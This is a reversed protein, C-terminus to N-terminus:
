AMNFKGDAGSMVAYPLGTSQALKRAILTKGCGSAGHILISRMPFGRASAASAVQVIADMREKIDDSLVLDETDGRWKSQMSLNGYERVLRPATFFRLIVLCTLSISEKLTSAAFVLAATAGVYFLFQQRGEATSVVHELCGALHWFISEIAELMETTLANGMLKIQKLSTAEHEREVVAEANIEEKVVRCEAATAEDLEQLERFHLSFAFSRRIQIGSISRLTSMLYRVENDFEM